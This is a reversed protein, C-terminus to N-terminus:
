EAKGEAIKAYHKKPMGHMYDPAYVLVDLLAERLREIEAAQAEIRDAQEKRAALQDGLSEEAAKLMANLTEIRDAANRELRAQEAGVKGSASWRLRGVLAKDNSLTEKREFDLPMSARIIKDLAKDDDTV